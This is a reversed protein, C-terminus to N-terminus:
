EAKDVRIWAWRRVRRALVRFLSLLIGQPPTRSLTALLGLKLIDIHSKPYSPHFLTIVDHTTPVRFFSLSVCILSFTSLARTRACRARRHKVGSLRTELPSTMTSTQTLPFLTPRGEAATPHTPASRPVFHHDHHLCLASTFKMEFIQLMTEEYLNSYICEHFKYM